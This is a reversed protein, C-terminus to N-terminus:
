SQYEYTYHHHVFHTLDIEGVIYSADWAKDADNQHWQGVADGVADEHSDDGIHKDM